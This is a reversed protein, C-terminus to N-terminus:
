MLSKYFLSFSDEVFWYVMYSSIGIWQDLYFYDSSNNEKWNASREKRRGYGKKSM